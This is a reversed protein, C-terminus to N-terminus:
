KELPILHTLLHLSGWGVPEVLTKRHKEQDDLRLVKGLSVFNPDRPAGWPKCYVLSVFSRIGCASTLKNRILSAGDPRRCVHGSKWLRLGSSKSPYLGKSASSSAHFSGSSSIELGSM